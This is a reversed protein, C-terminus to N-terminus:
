MKRCLQLAVIMGTTAIGTDSIPVNEMKVMIPPDTLLRDRKPNTSATPITTSSAMTTTSFTSRLIARPKDGSSAAWSVIVSTDVASIAIAKVSHATNTGTAKMEPIGPSNKLCNAMVIAPEVIMEHKTESM